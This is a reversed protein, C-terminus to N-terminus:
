NIPVVGSPPKGNGIKKRIFPAEGNEAVFFSFFFIKLIFVSNKKEGSL